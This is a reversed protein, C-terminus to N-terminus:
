ADLIKFISTIKKIIREVITRKTCKLGYAILKKRKRERFFKTRRPHPTSCRVYASNYKIVDDYDVEYLAVDVSKIYKDGKPSNVLIATHGEDTSLSPYTQEIGWFDGITIDSGSSGRKKSCSYCSPRLIVDALFLKMYSNDYKSQYNVYKTGNLVYSFSIGYDRWGKTKDRFNVETLMAGKPLTFDVYESLYQRWVGPSPVGHCVIDVTILNDYKKRLYTNLGAIQCPTGSFLVKRGQKLYNEAIKYADGVIAQAYKSGRFEKCAERNEACAFEPEWKANFKVGFVVGGEAICLDALRTFVGGSSSTKRVIEDLCHGAYVSKPRAAELENLMPCVRECLGCNVCSSIDIQPYLFGEDDELMQICHRPCRQACAACGCCKSNDNIVIM